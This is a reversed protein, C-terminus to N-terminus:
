QVECVLDTWHASASVGSAFIFVDCLVQILLLLSFPLPTENICAETLNQLTSVNGM